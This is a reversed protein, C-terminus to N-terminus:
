RHLLPGLSRLWRLWVTLHHANGSLNELHGEIAVGSM